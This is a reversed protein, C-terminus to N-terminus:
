IINVQRKGSGAQDLKHKESVMTDLTHILTQSGDEAEKMYDIIQNQLEINYEWDSNLANISAHVNSHVKAHPAPISKYSPLHAYKQGGDEASLWKGFRCSLEDVKVASAEPSGAGLDIARYARQMYVMHDLKALSVYCVMSAHNAIHYTSQAIDSFDSFNQEFKGILKSSENSLAEMEHSDKAIAESASLLNRIIIETKDTADKTNAALSRVEDAVVAFGRGHEGARAAEIAANLALLNTQDAITAIFTIIHAIEASSKDLAKSSERLENIKNIVDRTNTVVSNVSAKSDLANTAAVKSSSEVNNMQGAVETLDQQAGQLNDLLNKTKLLELKDTMHGKHTQWYNKEMSEISHSIKELSASFLGHLGVPFPKRYFIDKEAYEFATGVERMFTELQNTASNFNNALSALPSREPINTVRYELKGQSLQQGLIILQEQLRQSDKQQFSIQGLSVLSLVLLAIFAPDLGYMYTAYITVSLIVGTLVVLVQLPSFHLFLNKM